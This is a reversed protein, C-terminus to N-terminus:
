CKKLQERQLKTHNENIKISGPLKRWNKLIKSVEARDNLILKISRASEIVKTGLRFFTITDLNSEIEIVM